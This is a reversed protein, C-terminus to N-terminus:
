FGQLITHLAPKFRLPKGIFVTLKRMEYQLAVAAIGFLSRPLLLCYELLIYLQNDRCELYPDSPM